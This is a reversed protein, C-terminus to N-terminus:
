LSGHQLLVADATLRQPLAQPQELHLPQDRQATAGASPRDHTPDVGAAEAAHRRQIVVEGAGGVFLQELRPYQGVADEGFPRSPM